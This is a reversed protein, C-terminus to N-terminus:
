RGLHLFTWLHTGRGINWRNSWTCEAQDSRAYSHCAILGGELLMALHTYTGHQKHFYAILDGPELRAVQSEDETKEAVIEAHKPHGKMRGTLLDVMTSARVIGYPAHPPSGLQRYTLKIGGCREGPREGICCSIFHTCDDLQEFPIVSGDPLAAHEREKSTGDSAFEHEFVTGVPVKIFNASTRTAIFQDDCPRRWYKRAYALAGARDYGIRASRGALAPRVIRDRVNCWDTSLEAFQPDDRRIAGPPRSPHRASFGIDTLANENREGRDIADQVAIRAAVDRLTRGILWGSGEFSMSPLLLRHVTETVETVLDNTPSTQADKFTGEAPEAEWAPSTEWTPGAEPTSPPLTSTPAPARTHFIWESLHLAQAARITANRETYKRRPPTWDRVLVDKGDLVLALRTQAGRRGAPFTMRTLAFRVEIPLADFDRHRDAAFKRLVIEGYKLCVASALLADPGSDLKITKIMRPKDADNLHEEPTQRKDWGVHRYAPVAAELASRLDYFDDAGVGYSRVKESTLYLARGREALLSAALLGPDLDVDRAASVILDKFRRGAKGWFQRHGDAVLEESVALSANRASTQVAAWVEHDRIRVWEQALKADGPARADLAKGGLEPHQAFFVLNTLAADDRWGQEIAVRLAAAWDRRNLAESIQPTVVGGGTEFEQTDDEHDPEVEPEYAEAPINEGWAEELPTEDDSDRPCRSPHGSWEAMPSVWQPPEPAPVEAEFLSALSEFPSEGAQRVEPVAIAEDPRQRVRLRSHGDDADDNPRAAPSAEEQWSSPVAVPLGEIMSPLGEEPAPTTVSPQWPGAFPTEAELAAVGPPDADPTRDPEVYLLPSELNESPHIQYESM